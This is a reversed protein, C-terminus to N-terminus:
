NTLITETMTDPPCCCVWPSRQTLQLARRRGAATLGDDLLVIRMAPWVSRSLWLLGDVTQELGEGDGRARIVATVPTGGCAGVPTVLRGFLLWGAMGLGFAALAAVIIQLITEM